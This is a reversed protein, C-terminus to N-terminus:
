ASAKKLGYLSFRSGVAYSYSTVAFSISTLADTSMWLGSNLGIYEVSAQWFGWLCKITTNKTTEFPDLIDLVYGAYSGNGSNDRPIYGWDIASASAVGQSSPVSEDGAFRLRHYAYNSGSDSNLTMFNNGSSGTGTSTKSTIRLQLHQYDTGYTSNLSSFTVSAQASTLIETQLLDYASEPPAVYPETGALVNLYRAYNKVGSRLASSTPM